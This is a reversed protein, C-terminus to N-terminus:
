NLRKGGEFVMMAVKLEVLCDTYIATQSDTATLGPLSPTTRGVKCSRCRLCVPTYRIFREFCMSRGERMIRAHAVPFWNNDKKLFEGSSKFVKSSNEYQGLWYISGYGAILCAHAIVFTTAMFKFEAKKGEELGRTLGELFAAHEPKLPKM